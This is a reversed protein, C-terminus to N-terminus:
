SLGGREHNGGNNRPRVSKDVSFVGSSADWRRRRPHSRQDLISRAAAGGVIIGVFVLAIIEMILHRMGLIMFLVARM